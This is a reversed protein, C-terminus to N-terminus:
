VTFAGLLPLQCLPQAGIVLVERSAALPTHYPGLGEAVLASPVPPVQRDPQRSPWRPMRVGSRTLELSVASIRERDHFASLTHSPVLSRRETPLRQAGSIVGIVPQEAQM